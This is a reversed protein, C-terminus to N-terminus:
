FTCSPFSFVRLAAIECAPAAFGIEGVGSGVGVDFVLVFEIFLKQIVNPFGRPLM